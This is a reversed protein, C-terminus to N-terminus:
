AQMGALLTFDDPVGDRSRRRRPEVLRIVFRSGTPTNPEYWAEGGQASALGDVISLGLGTGSPDPAQGPAQTFKDFLHPVFEEPVGPGEDIVSVLVSGDESRAEIRFPPEGYRRANSLLNLVIQEVAHADAVAVLEADCDLELQPLGAALRAHQLIECLHVPRPTVPYQGGELRTMALLDNVLRALREGQEHIIQVFMRKQMDELDDWRDVMTSAFGTISTLPTRLEHSAMALFHTRMRDHMRLQENAANLAEMTARLAVTEVIQRDAGDDGLPDEPPLDPTDNAM